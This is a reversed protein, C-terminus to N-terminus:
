FEEHRLQLKVGHAVQRKQLDRAVKNEKGMSSGGKATVEKPEAQKSENKVSNLEELAQRSQQLFVFTHKSADLLLTSLTLQNDSKSAILGLEEIGKGEVRHEVEGNTAGSNEDVKSTKAPSVSPSVEKQPCTSPNTSVKEPCKDKMYDEELGFTACYFSGEMDVPKYSGRPRWLAANKKALDHYTISRGLLKIILSKEMGKALLDRIANSFEISPIEGEKAIKFDSESIVVEQQKQGGNGVSTQNVLMNKYSTIPVPEKEAM